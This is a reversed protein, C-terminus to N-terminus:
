LLSSSAVVRVGPSVTLIASEGEQRLLRHGFAADSDFSLGGHRDTLIVKLGELSTEEKELIIRLSGELAEGHSRSVAPHEVAETELLAALALAKERLQSEERWQPATRLMTVIGASLLLAMACLVGVLTVALRVRIKVM